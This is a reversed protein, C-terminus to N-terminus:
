SLDIPSGVLTPTARAGVGCFRPPGHVPPSEPALVRLWVPAVSPESNKRTPANPQTYKPLRTRRTALSASTGASSSFFAAPGVPELAGPSSTSPLGATLSLTLTLLSFHTPQAQQTLAQGVVTSSITLWLDVTTLSSFQVLQRAQSCTHGDPASVM